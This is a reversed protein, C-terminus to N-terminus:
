GNLDSVYDSGGFAIAQMWVTWNTKGRHLKVYYNSEMSTAGSFDISPMDVNHSWSKNAGPYYTNQHVILNRSEEGVNAYTSSLVSITPDQNSYGGTIKTAKATGTTGNTTETWYLTLSAKVALSNDKKITRAKTIEKTTTAAYAKTTFISGLFEASSNLLNGISASDSRKGIQNLNVTYSTMGETTGGNDSTIQSDVTVPATLDPGSSSDVTVADNVQYEVQNDTDKIVKDADDPVSLTTDGSQSTDIVPAVDQTTPVTDDAFVHASTAFASAVFLASLSLMGIFVKKTNMVNEGFNRILNKSILPHIFNQLKKNMSAINHRYFEQLNEIHKM